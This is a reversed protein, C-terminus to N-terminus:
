MNCSELFLREQVRLTRKSKKVWVIVRIGSKIWTVDEVMLSVDMNAHYTKNINKNM